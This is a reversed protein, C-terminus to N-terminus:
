VIGFICCQISFFKNSAACISVFFQMKLCIYKAINSLDMTSNQLKLFYMECHSVFVCNPGFLKEEEIQSLYMEFNSVFLNQLKPCIYM